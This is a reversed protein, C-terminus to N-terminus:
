IRLELLKADGPCEMRWVKAPYNELFSENPEEAPQPLIDKLLMDWVDTALASANHTRLESLLTLRVKDEKCLPIRWWPEGRLKCLSGVEPAVRWNRAIKWGDELEGSGRLVRWTRKSDLFSPIVSEITELPIRDSKALFATKSATFSDDCSKFACVRLERIGTNGLDFKFRQSRSNGCFDCSTQDAKHVFPEVVQDVANTAVKQFPVPTTEEVTHTVETDQAVPQEASQEMKRKKRGFTQPNM